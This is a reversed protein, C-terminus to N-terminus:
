RMQCFYGRNRAQAFFQIGDMVPMRLDSVIVAFPDGDTLHFIAERGSNAVEIDFQTRLQRRFAALVNPEDDVFLVRETM